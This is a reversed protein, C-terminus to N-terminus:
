PLGPRGNEVDALPEIRLSPVEIPLPARTEVAALDATWLAAPPELPPLGATEDGGAPAPATRTAPGRAASAPRGQRAHRPAVPAVAGSPPQAAPADAVPTPSAAVAPSAEPSTSGGTRHTLWIGALTLAGVAAALAVTWRLPVASRVRRADDASVRALVRERLGRSPAASTLEALAV